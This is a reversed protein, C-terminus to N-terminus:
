NLFVTSSKLPIYLFSYNLELFLSTMPLTMAEVNANSRSMVNLINFM